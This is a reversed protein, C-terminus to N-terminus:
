QSEGHEKDFRVSVTGAVLGRDDVMVSFEALYGWTDEFRYDWAVQGKNPFAITRWPPGIIRLVEEKTMGASVRRLNDDTLAQTLGQLRGDPAVFAMWTQTGGPGRPYVLQRAGAAGALVLAPEGLAGRVDAETSRGPSLAHLAGAACAALLLSAAALGGIGSLGM